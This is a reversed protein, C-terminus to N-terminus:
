KGGKILEPTEYINGIIELGELGVEDKIAEFSLFIKDNIYDGMIKDETVECYFCALEQHWKVVVQATVDYTPGMGDDTVIEHETDDVALYDGEYIEVGNKDKLGTYRMVIAEVGDSETAMYYNETNHLLLIGSETIAFDDIWLQGISDWARFKIERM